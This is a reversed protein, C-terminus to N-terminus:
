KSKVRGKGLILEGNPLRAWVVQDASFADATELKKGRRRHLVFVPGSLSAADGRFQKEDGNVFKVTIMKRQEKKGGSKLPYGRGIRLKL